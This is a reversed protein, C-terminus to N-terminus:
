CPGGKQLKYEGFSRAFVADALRSFAATISSGASDDECALSRRRRVRRLSGLGM